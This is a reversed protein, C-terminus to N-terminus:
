RSSYVDFAAGLPTSLENGDENRREDDGGKRENIRSPGTGGGTDIYHIFFPWEGQEREFGASESQLRREQQVSLVTM